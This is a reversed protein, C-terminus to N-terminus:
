HDHSSALDRMVSDIDVDEDEGAQCAELAAERCDPCDLLSELFMRTIEPPADPALGFRGGRKEFSKQLRKISKHDM